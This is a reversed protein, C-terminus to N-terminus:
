RQLAATGSVTLITDDQPTHIRGCLVDRYHREIPNARPLGPKGVLSVGLEVARIANNTVIHKILGARGTVPLGHDADRAAEALLCRNTLLLAEIQGAASQFRPLSALPKGLNAPTRENLYGVLWGRAAHAVGDYTASVLLPNWLSTAGQHPGAQEDM